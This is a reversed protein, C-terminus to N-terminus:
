ELSRDEETHLFSVLDKVKGLGSRSAHIGPQLHNIRVNQVLIPGLASDDVQRTPM